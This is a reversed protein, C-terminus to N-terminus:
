DDEGGGSTACFAIFSVLTMPMSIFLAVAIAMELPGLLDPWIRERVWPLAILYAAAFGIATVGGTRTLMSSWSFWVRPRDPPQTPSEYPNESM